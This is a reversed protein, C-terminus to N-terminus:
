RKSSTSQLCSNVRSVMDRFKQIRSFALTPFTLELMSVGAQRGSIRQRSNIQTSVPPPLPSHILYDYDSM